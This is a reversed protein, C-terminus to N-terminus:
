LSDVLLDTPHYQLSSRVVPFDYYSDNFLSSTYCLFFVREGYANANPHMQLICKHEHVTPQQNVRHKQYKHHRFETCKNVDSNCHIVIYSLILQIYSSIFLSTWLLSISSRFVPRPVITLEM